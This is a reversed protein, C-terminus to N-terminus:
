QANQKDPVIELVRGAVADVDVEYSQSGEQIEFSYRLGTIDDRGELAKATIVGPRSNMAIAIARQLSITSNGIGAEASFAASVEVVCVVVAFVPAVFKAACSKKM